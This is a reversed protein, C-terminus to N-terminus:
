DYFFLVCKYCFTGQFSMLRNNLMLSVGDISIYNTIPIYHLSVFTIMTQENCLFICFNKIFFFFTLDKNASIIVIKHLLQVSIFDYYSQKRQKM